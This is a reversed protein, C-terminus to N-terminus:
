EDDDEENMQVTIHVIHKDKIAIWMGAAGAITGAIFTAIIVGTMSREGKGLGGVPGDRKRVERHLKRKRSAEPYFFITWPLVM